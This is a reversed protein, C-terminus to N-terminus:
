GVGPDTLGQALDFVARSKGGQKLFNRFENSILDYAAHSAYASAWDFHTHSALGALFVNLINKETNSVLKVNLM